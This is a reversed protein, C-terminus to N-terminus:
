KKKFMFQYGTVQVYQGREFLSTGCNLTQQVDATRKDFM